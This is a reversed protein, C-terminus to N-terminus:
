SFSLSFPFSLFFFSSGGGGGGDSQFSGRYFFVGAEAPTKM